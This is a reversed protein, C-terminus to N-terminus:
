GRFASASGVVPMQGEARPPRIRAIVAKGRDHADRLDAQVSGAFCVLPGYICSEGVIELVLMPGDRWARDADVIRVTGAIERPVDVGHVRVKGSPRPPDQRPPERRQYGRAFDSFMGDFIDTFSNGGGTSPSPSPASGEAQPPTRVFALDAVDAWTMGQARLLRTALRFANVAEGDGAASESGMMGIAAVLRDDPNSPM